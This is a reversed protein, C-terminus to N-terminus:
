EQQCYIVLQYNPKESVKLQGRTGKEVDSCRKLQLQSHRQARYTNEGQRSASKILAGYMRTERQSSTPATISLQRVPSAVMLPFSLSLLTAAEEELERWRAGGGCSLLLGM